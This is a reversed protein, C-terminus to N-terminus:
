EGWISAKWSITTCAFSVVGDDAPTDRRRSTIGPLRRDDGTADDCTTRGTASQARRQAIRTCLGDVTDVQPVLQRHPLEADGPRGDLRLKARANRHSMVSRECNFVASVVLGYLFLHLYGGAHLPASLAIYAGPTPPEVLRSDVLLHAMRATSLPTLLSFVVRSAVLASNSTSPSTLWRRFSCCFNFLSLRM